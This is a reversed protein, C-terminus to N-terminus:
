LAPPRYGFREVDVHCQEGVIRVSEADWVVDGDYHNVWPMDLSVHLFEGIRRYPDDEYLFVRTEADSYYTSFGGAPIFVSDAAAQRVFDRFPISGYILFRGVNEASTNEIEPLTAFYTSLRWLSGVVDWPNRIVVIQQHNPFRARADAASVHLDYETPGTVITAHPLVKSVAEYFSHGGTRPAHVFVFRPEDCVIM